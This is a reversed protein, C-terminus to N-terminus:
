KSNVPKFAEEVIMDRIHGFQANVNHRLQQDILENCFQKTIDETITNDDKSEFIVNVLNPNDADTQQYIYFLHSFKYISATVVEKTYLNFDVIVQFKNNDLEVVPFKINAM